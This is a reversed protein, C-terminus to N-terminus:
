GKQNVESEIDAILIDLYHRAKYLDELGNKKKYRTVYKIINGEAFNLKNKLIFETPQIAFEKYHNGGVQTGWVDGRVIEKATEALHPNGGSLSGVFAPMVVTDDNM